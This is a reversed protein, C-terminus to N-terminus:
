EHGGAIGPVSLGLKHYITAPAGSGLFGWGEPRDKGRGVAPDACLHQLLPSAGGRHCASCVGVKRKRRRPCRIVTRKTKKLTGGGGGVERERELVLGKLDDFIM